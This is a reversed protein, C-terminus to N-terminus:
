AMKEKNQVQYITYLYYVNIIVIGFNMFITPYSEIFVGYIGFLLAGVLNIWRLWKISRMLLSLLVIFSAIFGLWEIM